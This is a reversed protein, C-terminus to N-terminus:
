FRNKKGKPRPCSCNSLDNQTLRVLITDEGFCEILHWPIVLDDEHGWGFLGCSGRIVLALVRADSDFEFDSAYGLRAGSCLNIIELRRLDSTSYRKM